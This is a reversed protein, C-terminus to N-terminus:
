KKPYGVSQALIVKQDPRLKMVKALAPRDVLGRVVTALGESACYLYVNQGIFGTNAASYFVKDEATTEGMKSFDAVYILNVPAEQVFPQRGTAARVDEALVPKLTHGKADYLYLGDATAVYIDIEQRNSASPATRKGLDSRNVGFAAWLMNSLVQLPLKETSFERSSSRDQLVQMLPRGGDMQPKLLQISKLEQGSTLAPCILLVALVLRAAQFSRTNM